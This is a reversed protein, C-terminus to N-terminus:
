RRARTNRNNNINGIWSKTYVDFLSESRVFSSIFLSVGNTTSRECAAEATFLCIASKLELPPDGVSDNIKKLNMKERKLILDKSIGFTSLTSLMGAQFLLKETELDLETSERELKKYKLEVDVKETTLNLFAWTSAIFM